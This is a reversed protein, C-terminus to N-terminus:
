FEFLWSKVFVVEFRETVVPIGTILIWITLKECFSGWFTWDYNVRLPIKDHSRDRWIWKIQPPLLKHLYYNADKSIKKSLIQTIELVGLTKHLHLTVWTVMYACKSFNDIGELYKCEFASKWVEIASLFLSTTLIECSITQYTVM